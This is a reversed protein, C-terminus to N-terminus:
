VAAEEFDEMLIQIAKEYLYDWRIHIMTLLVLVACCVDSSGDQFLQM